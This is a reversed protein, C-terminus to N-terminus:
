FVVDAHAIAWRTFEGTSTLASDRAIADKVCMVSYEEPLRDLYTICNKFNEVTARRALACSVAFLSAPDDKPVPSKKPELLIGDISPLNRYLKLFSAFEIAAGDGIAGKYLDLEIAPSPNCAVIQSVAHLTRPSPFTRAQADFAYLLETRFRVFAIVVPEVNAAIAWKCWQELDTEADL